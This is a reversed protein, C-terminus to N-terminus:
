VSLICPVTVAMSFGHIPAVSRLEEDVVEKITVSECGSKLLLGPAYLYCM